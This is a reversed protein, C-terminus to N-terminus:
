RSAGDVQSRYADRLVALLAMREILPEPDAPTAGGLVERLQSVFSGVRAFLPDPLRVSRAGDAFEMTYEPM